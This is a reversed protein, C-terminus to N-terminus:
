VAEKADYKATLKSVMIELEELFVSVASEIEGILKNDRQIRKVFYQMSEPMRPDFSIYDNWDRATCAIQWQIQLLYKRPLKETLLTDIHTATNPVKVEILGSTLVLGDPSAGTMPISPHDVFGIKGVQHDSFFEYAAIADPENDIGFQMAANVYNNAPSRTLREAALEAMYNKRGAGWGSKTKAMVDAIRSATVKGLRLSYWDDSRQEVDHWNDM